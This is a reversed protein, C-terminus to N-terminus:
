NSINFRRIAFSYRWNQTQKDLWILKVYRNIRFIQQKEEISIFGFKFVFELTACIICQKDYKRHLNDDICSHVVKQVM